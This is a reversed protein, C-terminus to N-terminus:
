FEMPQPGECVSNVMIGQPVTDFPPQPFAQASPMSDFSREFHSPAAPQQPTPALLQSAQQQPQPQLPPQQQLLQQQQVQRAQLEQALVSHPPQPTLQPKSAAFLPPPPPMAARSAQAPPPPPMAAAAATPPTLVPLGDSPTARGSSADSSSRRRGPPPPPGMASPASFGVVPVPSATSFGVSRTPGATGETLRSTRSAAQTAMGASGSSSGASGQGGFGGPSPLLQGGFGGPSGGIHPAPGGHLSHAMRMKHVANHRIALVQQREEDSFAGLQEQSLSLLRVVKRVHKVQGEDVPSNGSSAHQIVGVLARICMRVDEPSDTDPEMARCRCRDTAQLTEVWGHPARAPFAVRGPTSAAHGPPHSQRRPRDNPDLGSYFEWPPLSLPKYALLAGFPICSRISLRARVELTKKQTVHVCCRM